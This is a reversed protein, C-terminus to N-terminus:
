FSCPGYPYDRRKTDMAAKGKLIATPTTPRVTRTKPGAAGGAGNKEAGGAIALAPVRKEVTTWQVADGAARHFYKVRSIGERKRANAPTDVPFARADADRMATAYCGLGGDLEIYGKHLFVAPKLTKIARWGCGGRVVRSEERRRTPTESVDRDESDRPTRDPDRDSPETSRVSGGGDGDGGGGRMSRSGDFNLRARSEAAESAAAGSTGRRASVDAGAFHFPANADLTAWPVAVAKEVRARDIPRCTPEPKAWPPTETRDRNEPLPYLRTSRQDARMKQDAHVRVTGSFRAARERMANSEAEVRTRRKLWFAKKAITDMLNPDREEYEFERWSQLDESRPRPHPLSIALKAIDLDISSAEEEEEWPNPDERVVIGRGRGYGEYVRRPEFKGALRAGARRQWGGSHLHSKKGAEFASWESVGRGGDGASARSQFRGSHVEALTKNGPLKPKGPDRHDEPV